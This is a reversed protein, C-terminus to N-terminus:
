SRAKLPNPRLFDIDQILKPGRKIRDPPTTCIEHPRQSMDAHQARAPTRRNAPTEKAAAVGRSDSRRLNRRVGTATSGAPRALGAAPAM